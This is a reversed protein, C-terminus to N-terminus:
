GLELIMDLNQTENLPDSLRLSGINTAPPEKQGLKYDIQKQKSNPDCFISKNYTMNQRRNFSSVIGIQERYQQSAEIYLFFLLIGPLM